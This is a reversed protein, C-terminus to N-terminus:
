EKDRSRSSAGAALPPVADDIPKRRASRKRDVHMAWLFMAGLTSGILINLWINMDSNWTCRLWQKPILRGPQRSCRLRVRRKPVRGDRDDPSQGSPEAPRTRGQSM